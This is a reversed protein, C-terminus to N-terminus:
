IFQIQKDTRNFLMNKKRNLNESLRINSELLESICKLADSNYELCNSIRELANSNNDFTKYVCKLTNSNCDFPNSLYFYYNSSRM